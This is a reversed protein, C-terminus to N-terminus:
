GTGVGRHAPLRAGGRRAGASRRGRPLARHHVRSAADDTRGPRATTAEAAVSDEPNAALPSPPTGTSPTPPAPYHGTAPLLLPRGSAPSGQHVDFTEVDVEGDQEGLQVQQLPRRRGLLGPEARDLEPPREGFRNRGVPFDVPEDASD